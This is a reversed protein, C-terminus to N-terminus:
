GTPLSAAPAATPPGLTARLPTGPGTPRASGPPLTHWSACTRWGYPSGYRTQQERYRYPQAEWGEEKWVTLSGHHSGDSLV